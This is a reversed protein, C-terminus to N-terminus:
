IKQQASKLWAEKELRSKSSNEEEQEKEEELSKEKKFSYGGSVQCSWKKQRWCSLM